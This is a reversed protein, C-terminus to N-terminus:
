RASILHTADASTLARAIDLLGYGSTTDRGPSGIDTAGRYLLLRITAASAHPHYGRLVGAAASVLAAASSTGSSTSLTEGGSISVIDVGPAVLDTSPGTNSFAAVRDRPTSAGVGIVGPYAAPYIQRRPTGGDNGVAAVVVIDAALAAAIANQLRPSDVAGGISLNIVGVRAATALEVARAVTADSGYGENTIAKYVVLRCNPCVSRFGGPDPAAAILAASHTAHGDADRLPDPSVINVIDTIQSRLLPADADIGSDILAVTVPLARRATQPMGIHGLYWQRAATPRAARATPAHAPPHQRGVDFALAATLLLLCVWSRM